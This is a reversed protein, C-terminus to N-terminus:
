NIRGSIRGNSTFQQYICFSLLFDLYDAGTTEPICFVVEQRGWSGVRRCNEAVLHLKSLHRQSQEEM